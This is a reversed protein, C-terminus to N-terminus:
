AIVECALVGLLRVGEDSSKEPHFQCGIARKARVIAPFRDGDITTTALVVASDIPRCAFSHAYYVASPCPRGASAWEDPEIPEIPSWGMHPIRTTALRTVRGRILGLGEGDGEDSAEFLLQM